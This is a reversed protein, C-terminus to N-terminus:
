SSKRVLYTQKTAPDKVLLNGNTLKKEYKRTTGNWTFGASSYAQKDGAAIKPEGARPSDHHGGSGGYENDRSKLALLAEDREAKLRKRNAIAYVEEAIDDSTYHSPFSRSKSLEVMLNLETESSAFTRIREETRDRMIERTSFNREEQLIQQLEAKTLPQEQDDSHFEGKKVAERAKFAFDSAAKEAAIRADQERKLEDEYHKKLSEEREKTERAVKETDTENARADAEAQAKVEAEAKASEEAAKKEEETM